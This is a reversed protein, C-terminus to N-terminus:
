RQSGQPWVLHYPDWWLLSLVSGDLIAWIRNAGTLRISVLRDPDLKLTTLRKRAEKGLQDSRPQHNKRRRDGFLESLKSKELSRLHQIISLFDDQTATDWGFPGDIDVLAFSWTPTNQRTDFQAGEHPQKADIASEKFRPNRQKGRRRNM